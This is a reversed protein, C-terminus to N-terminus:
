SQDHLSKLSALIEDTVITFRVGDKIVHAGEFPPYWFARSRLEIEDKSLGDIDIQKAQNMDERTYYRGGKNAFTSLMGETEVRTVVDKFLSLMHPRTRMELDFATDVQWNFSFRKVEIIPGSDFGSDVYHATAGWEQQKELIAFNYGGLGKYEPLPAPHFNICGYKAAQTISSRIRRWYLFSVVLDIDFLADGPRSDRVIRHIQNSSIIPLGRDQAFERVTPTWYPTEDGTGSPCVVGVVEHGSELLWSLAEVAHPRRGMFLIKM